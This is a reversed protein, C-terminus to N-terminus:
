EVLADPFSTSLGVSTQIHRLDVVSLVKGPEETRAEHRSPAKESEYLTGIPKIDWEVTGYLEAMNPVFEEGAEKFSIVLIPVARQIFLLQLVEEAGSRIRWPCPGHERIRGNCVIRTRDCQM